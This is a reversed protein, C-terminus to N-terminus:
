DPLPISEPYSHLAELALNKAAALLKEARSAQTCLKRTSRGAAPTGRRLVQFGSPSLSPRFPHRVWGDGGTWKWPKVTVEQALERNDNGLQDEQRSGRKGTMKHAVTLKSEQLYEGPWWVKSAVQRVLEGTGVAKILDETLSTM